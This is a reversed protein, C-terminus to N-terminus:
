FCLALPVVALPDPDSRTAVTARIRFSKLDVLVVMDGHLSAM